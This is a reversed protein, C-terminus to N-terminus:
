YWFNSKSRLNNTLKYRSKTINYRNQMRFKRITFSIIFITLNSIPFRLNNNTSPTSDKNRKIINTNNNNIFLMSRRILLIIIRSIGSNIHSFPSTFIMITRQYKTTSSRTQFTKSLSTIM